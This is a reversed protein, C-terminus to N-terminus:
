KLFSEITKKMLEAREWDENTDIDVVRWDPLRFLQSEEFINDKELWTRTSAWYFQGADFFSDELDQSRKTFNRPDYMKMFGTKPDMLLARQIPSPFKCGSVIFKNNPYKVLMSYSDRLDDALVFPATALLCCLSKSCVGNNQLWNIAHKMVLQLSAFDGSIDLPRFFPVSAGFERSINAIEQDDTSVIIEDFIKAEKAARISWYIIPKGFFIKINKRPIRKSGGRAPIICINM